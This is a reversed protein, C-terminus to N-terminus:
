ARNDPQHGGIYGKNGQPTPSSFRNIAVRGAASRSLGQRAQDFAKAEAVSLKITVVVPRGGAVAAQRGM